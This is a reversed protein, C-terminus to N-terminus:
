SADLPARETSGADRDSSAKLTFGMVDIYDLIDNRVQAIQEATVVPINDFGVDCPHPDLWKYPEGSPHLGDINWYRGYGLWEFAHEGGDGDIFAIRWKHVVVGDVIKYMLARRPSGDRYRTPAPGCRRVVIEVLADAISPDNADVDACNVKRAQIGIGAGMEAWEKLRTATPFLKEAWKGCLGVWGEPKTIGPTKGRNEPKVKSQPSLKADIPIIPLLEKGFGAKWWEYWNPKYATQVASM